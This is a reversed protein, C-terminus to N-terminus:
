QHKASQPLATPSDEWRTFIGDKGDYLVKLRLRSSQEAAPTVIAEVLSLGTDLRRRLVWGRPGSIEGRYGTKLTEDDKRDLASGGEILIQIVATNVRDAPASLTVDIM